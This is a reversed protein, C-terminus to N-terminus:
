ERHYPTGAAISVARYVQEALMARVLKHPWTQQGLALVTRAAEVAAPGHGDAGGILFTVAEGADRWKILRRSMEESTWQEGREDLRVLVGSGSGSSATAKAVLREAERERGGGADVEIERIDRWGLARGTKRARDLYDDVLAREPGDKLRGVCLIRISM